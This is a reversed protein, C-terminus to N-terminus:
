LAAVTKELETVREESAKFSRRAMGLDEIMSRILVLLDKNQTSM